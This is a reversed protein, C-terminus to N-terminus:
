ACIMDDGGVFVIGFLMKTTGVFKKQPDVFKGSWLGATWFVDVIQPYGKKRMHPRVKARVMVCGGFVM